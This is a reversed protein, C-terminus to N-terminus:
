PLKPPPPLPLSLPLPPLQPLGPPHVAAGSTDNVRAAAPRADRVLRRGAPASRPWRSRGAPSASPRRSGGKGCAFSQVSAPLPAGALGRWVARQARLGRAFRACEACERLHRKLLKRGSRALRGDLQRSIAQEAERCTLAGELQERFARRAAFVLLEVAAPRLELVDAIEAYSRSELERMVLAAREDFPLRSLGRHIEAPSPSGDDHLVAAPEDDEADTGARERCARYALSLFWTRTNRPREGRVFAGRADVLTRRTVEEAQDPDRLVVLAYRYVDAVQRRCLREFARDGRQLQALLPTM